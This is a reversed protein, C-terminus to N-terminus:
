QSHSRYRAHSLPTHEMQPGMLKRCENLIVIFLSKKKGRNCVSNASSLQLNDTQVMKEQRKVNADLSRNLYLVVDKLEM